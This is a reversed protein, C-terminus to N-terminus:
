QYLALDVQVSHAAQQMTLSVLRLLMARELAQCKHAAPSSHYATKCLLMRINVTLVGVNKDTVTHKVEMRSSM